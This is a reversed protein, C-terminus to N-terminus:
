GYLITVSTVATVTVHIAAPFLIGEGPLEVGFIGAAAPTNITLLTTGSGNTNKFVLSGAGAGSTIILGKLRARAGVMEGTATAVASIVDTQM